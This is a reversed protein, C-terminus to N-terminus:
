TKRRQLFRVVAAFKEYIYLDKKFFSKDLICHKPFAIKRVQKSLDLIVIRQLESGLSVLKVLKKKNKRRFFKGCLLIVM